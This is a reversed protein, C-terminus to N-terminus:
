PMRPVILTPGSVGAEEIERLTQGSLADLVGVAGIEDHRVFLLPADDQTVAMTHIGPNPLAAGLLWNWWGDREIALFPRLFAPLLTEPEIVQVRAHKDVDYVWIASGADKHSGQGGQHVLSYLRRTPRHLALHQVGGIRWSDEREADSFLPWPAAAVPREGSFDIAHLGGEFSAFLWRSGDRVGKETLPDAVVDFFPESRSSRAQRGDPHLEIEAATGDGCLSGFERPGTPYVLACGAIVIEEVFRRNELDVVSVSNSPDQNFVVLFRQDDLVEAIAYGHGISASRPPIEIEGLVKLTRADYITVYDKREGRHGRSYVAEVIAIEDRKPVTIPAPGSLTFTASLTGLAQGTDGDFLMSHNFVRDPVWVWHPSLEPLTAVQGHEDPEIDAGATGAALVAAVLLVGILLRETHPRGHRL